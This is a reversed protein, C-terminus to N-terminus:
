GNHYAKELIAELTSVTQNLDDNVVVHDYLHAQTMEEEADKLRREVAEPSDTGRKMLRKKLEEMNPTAIFVSIADPYKAFLRKAGQVDIDLLVEQGAALTEEVYTASTGYLRGHVEAWEALEGAEIKNRFAVESIFHYDVGDQEDGRPSRTTYSISYRFQPGKRLIASLITSKGAGSPGSIIFLHGKTPM